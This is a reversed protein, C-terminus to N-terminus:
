IGFLYQSCINFHNCDQLRIRQQPPFILYHKWKVVFIVKREQIVQSEAMSVAAHKLQVVILDTGQTMIVIKSNLEFRVGCVALEYSIAGKLQLHVSENGIFYM